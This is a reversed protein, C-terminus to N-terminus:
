VRLRPDTMFDSSVRIARIAAVRGLAGHQATLAASARAPLGPGAAHGPPGDGASGGDIAPRSRTAQPAGPIPGLRSRPRRPPGSQADGRRTRLWRAAPVGDVAPVVATVNAARARRRVVRSRSGTMKLCSKEGGPAGAFFSSISTCTVKISPEESSSCALALPTMVCLKLLGARRM